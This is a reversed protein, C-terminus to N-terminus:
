PNLANAEQEKRSSIPAACDLAANATDLELEGKDWPRQLPIQTGASRHDHRHCAMVRKQFASGHDGSLFGKRFRRPRNKSPVRRLRRDKSFRITSQESTATPHEFLTKGCLASRNTITRQMLRLPFGNTNTERAHSTDDRVEWQPIKFGAIGSRACIQDYTIPFWHRPRRRDSVHRRSRGACRASVRRRRTQKGRLKRATEDDRPVFHPARGSTQELMQNWDLPFFNSTRGRGGRSPMSVIFDSCTISAFSIFFAVPCCPRARRWWAFNNARMKDWRYLPIGWNQGWKQTFADDKFYPEPPAGGCWDLVFDDPRAFVDASYYSVGFPIDGMLAM